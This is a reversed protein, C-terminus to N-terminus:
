IDRTIPYDEGVEGAAEIIGLSPLLGNVLVDIYYQLCYSRLKIVHGAGYYRDLIGHDGVTLIDGPEAAHANHVVAVLTALQRRRAEAM